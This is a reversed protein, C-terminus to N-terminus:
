AVAEQPALGVIRAMDVKALGTDHAASTRLSVTTKFDPYDTDLRVITGTRGDDLMVCRRAMMAERLEHLTTM